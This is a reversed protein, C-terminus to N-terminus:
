GCSIEPRPMPRLLNGWASLDTQKKGSAGSPICYPRPRILMPRKDDSTPLGAKVWRRVTNKHIGFLGAIEEVTYSRHIKVHRHNPHRKGM